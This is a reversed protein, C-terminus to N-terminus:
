NVLKNYETMHAPDLGSLLDYAQTSLQSDLFLAALEQYKASFFLDLVFARNVQDSLEDLAQLVSLISARAEETATVFHDLGQFHYDFYARRLSRFRPDLIQEILDGRGRESGVQSWGPASQGEALEAIRRAREFYRTGGLDSFTDYDYGLMLYAYFDLVSALPDYQDPNFILPAGQVYNFQWSPDSFQAVISHQTTNYIPRRSAIILRASFSTLTTAQEFTIQITCDIREEERWRDETWTQNNIYEEVHQELDRLFGFDNGSLQSIDVAASCNFEQAAAPRVVGGGVVLLGLLAAVRLPFFRVHM